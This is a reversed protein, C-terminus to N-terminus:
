ARPLASNCFFNAAQKQGESRSEGGFARTVGMALETVEDAAATTAETCSRPSESGAAGALAVCSLLLGVGLVRSLM